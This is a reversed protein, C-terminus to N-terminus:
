WYLKILEDSVASPTLVGLDTFLLSIYQPPTYDIYPHLNEDSEISEYQLPYVSIDGYQPTYNYLQNGKRRQTHRSAKPPVTECIQLERSSCLIAQQTGQGDCSSSINRDTM